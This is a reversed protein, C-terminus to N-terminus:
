MTAIHEFAAQVFPDDPNIGKAIEAYKTADAKSPTDIAVYYFFLYRCAEFRASKAKAEVEPASSEEIVKQYYDRVIDMPTQSNTNNLRALQQYALVIPLRNESGSEIVAKFAEDAKAFFEAKKEPTNDQQQYAALYKTGLLYRDSVDAKDGLLELYKQFVAIGEEAQKNRVYLNSIEYYYSGRKNVNEEKKKDETLAPFKAELDAVALQFYNIAEAYNRQEKALQAAFDYDMYFYVSDAFQKNKIYSAAEEAAAVAGDYDMALEIKKFKAFFDMRPILIDNPAMPKLVSAVEIMKDLNTDDQASMSFLAQLYSECSGIDLKDAEKPTADYYAGYYKVAEKYNDLKYYIDGLNRDADTFSPDIEKIKNLADIAVHPNVNKYVFANRKLAPVNTPDIALVEDFKQGADGWRQAKMFVEGSFMLGPIYTPDADYVAKACQSAAPYNDHELFFTGVAVLDEKKNKIKKSLQMFVKNAKEPDDMNLSVVQEAMAQWEPNLPPCEYSRQAQMSSLGLTLLASLAAARFINKKM